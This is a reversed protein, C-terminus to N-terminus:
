DLIGAGFGMRLHWNWIGTGFAMGLAWHGLDWYWIGTLYGLKSSGFGLGLDVDLIGLGLDRDWVSIKLKGVLLLGTSPLSLPCISNM